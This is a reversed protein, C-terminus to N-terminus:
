SGGSHLPSFIAACRTATSRKSHCPLFAIATSNTPESTQNTITLTIKVACPLTNKQNWHDQWRSGDFFTLEISKINQALTQWQQNEIFRNTQRIYPQQQYLLTNSTTDLKYRIEFLGSQPHRDPFLAYTTILHLNNNTAAFYTSTEPEEPPEAPGPYACRIQQAIQDLILQTHSATDIRTLCRSASRSTASYTAYACSLILAIMTITVLLEILTFGNKQPTPKV